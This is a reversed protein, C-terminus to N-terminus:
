VLKKVEGSYRSKKYGIIALNLIGKDLLEDM